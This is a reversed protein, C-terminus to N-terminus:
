HFRHFKPSHRCGDMLAFGRNMVLAPDKKWAKLIHFQEEMCLKCNRCQFTNMICLSDGRWLIKIDMFDHVHSSSCEIGGGLHVLHAAFHSAFTDGSLVKGNVLSQTENFHQTMRSKLHQQTNGVYRM